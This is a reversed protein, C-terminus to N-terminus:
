LKNLIKKKWFVYLILFLGHKIFIKKINIKTPIKPRNWPIAWPNSIGAAELGIKNIKPNIQPVVARWINPTVMPWRDILFLMDRIKNRM